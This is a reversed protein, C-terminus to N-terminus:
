SYLRGVHIMGFIYAVLGLLLASSFLAIWFATFVHFELMLTAISVSFAVIGGAVTLLMRYIKSKNENARRQDNSESNGETNILGNSRQLQPIFEFLYYGLVYWFFLSILGAIMVAVQFSLVNYVGEM